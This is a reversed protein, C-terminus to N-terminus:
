GAELLRTVVPASHHPLYGLAPAGLTTPLGGVDFNDKLAFPVGALPLDAGAALRQDIVAAHAMLEDAAVRFTWVGPPSDLARELFATGAGTAGIRDTLARAEAITITIREPPM